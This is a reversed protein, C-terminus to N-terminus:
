LHPCHGNTQVTFKVVTKQESVVSGNWDAPTFHSSDLMIWQAAPLLRELSLALVSAPSSQRCRHKSLWSWEDALLVIHCFYSQLPWCHQQLFFPVSSSPSFGAAFIVGIDVTQFSGSVIFKCSLGTLLSLPPSISKPDGLNLSSQSSRSSSIPSQPGGLHTLTQIPSPPYGPLLGRNYLFRHRPNCNVRFHCSFLLRCGLQELTGLPQLQFIKHASSLLNIEEEKM